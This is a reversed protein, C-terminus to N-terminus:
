IGIFYQEYLVRLRSLKNEFDSLQEDLDEPADTRRAM